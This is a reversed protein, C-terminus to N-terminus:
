GSSRVRRLSLTHVYAVVHAAEGPNHARMLIRACTADRVRLLISAEPHVADLTMQGLSTQDREDVLAVRLGGTLVTLRVALRYQGPPLALQPGAALFEHQSARARLTMLAGVEGGGAAVGTWGDPRAPPPLLEEELAPVPPAVPQKVADFTAEWASSVDAATVYMTSEGWESCDQCFLTAGGRRTMLRIENRDAVSVVMVDDALLESDHVWDCGEVRVRQVARGDVPDFFWILAAASDTLYLERGDASVRAGHCGRLGHVVERYRRDRDFHGVVGPIWLTVWVGDAAPFACNVHAPQLDTPVYHARLDDGPGVDYGVGYRAPVRLREVVQGRDVDVRLVANAPASVLWVHGADDVFATHGGALWNDEITRIPNFRADLVEVRDYGCVVLRDAAFVASQVKYDPAYHHLLSLRWDDHIRWLTLGGVYPMAQQVSELSDLAPLRDLRPPPFRNHIANLSGCTQEFPRTSHTVCLIRM